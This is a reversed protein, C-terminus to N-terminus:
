LLRQHVAFAELVGQAAPSARCRHTSSESLLLIIILVGSERPSLLFVDRPGLAQMQDEQGACSTPSM